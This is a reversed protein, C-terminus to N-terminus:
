LIFGEVIMNKYMGVDSPSGIEETYYDEGIIIAGALDQQEMIWKSLSFVDPFSDYWKVHEIKYYCYESDSDAQWYDSWNESFREVFESELSKDIKIYVDSRYGM